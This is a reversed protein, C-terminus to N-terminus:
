VGVIALNSVWEGLSIGHLTLGKECVRKPICCHCDHQYTRVRPPHFMYIPLNGGCNAVRIGVGPRSQDSDQQWRVSRETTFSVVGVCNWGTKVIVNFTAKGFDVLPVIRVARHSAPYVLCEPATVAYIRVIGKDPESLIPLSLAPVRPFVRRRVSASPGLRSAKDGGTACRCDFQHGQLQQDLSGVFTPRCTVVPYLRTVAQQLTPNRLESPAM